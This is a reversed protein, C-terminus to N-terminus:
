EPSAGNTMSSRGSGAGHQQSTTSTSQRRESPLAGQAQMQRKTHEHMFRSYSSIDTPPSNSTPINMSYTDASSMTTPLTTLHNNRRHRNIQPQLPHQSATHHLLKQKRNYPQPPPPPEGHPVLSVPGM